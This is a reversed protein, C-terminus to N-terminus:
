ASERPYRDHEKAEIANRVNDRHPALSAATNRVRQAEALISASAQPFEEPVVDAFEAVLREVNKWHTKIQSDLREIERQTSALAECNKLHTLAFGLRDEAIVLSFKAEILDSDNVASHSSVSKAILEAARSLQTLSQSFRNDLLRLSELQRESGESHSCSHCSRAAPGTFRQWRVIEEGGVGPDPADGGPQATNPGRM